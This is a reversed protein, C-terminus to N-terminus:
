IENDEIIIEIVYIIMVICMISIIEIYLVTLSDVKLKNSLIFKLLYNEM